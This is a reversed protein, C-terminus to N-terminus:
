HYTLWKEQEWSSSAAEQLGPVTRTSPDTKSRLCRRSQRTIEPNSTKRTIAIYLTEGNMPYEGREWRLCLRSEDEWTSAVASRGDAMGATGDNELMKVCGVTGARWRWWPKRVAVASAAVPPRSEDFRVERASPGAPFCGAM